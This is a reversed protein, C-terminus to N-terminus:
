CSEPMGGLIDAVARTELPRYFVYGQVQDCGMATIIDLQRENEVGEAVIQLGLSHGIAVIHRALVVNREEALNQIFSRDIKLTDFPFSCLYSLSSYGTGFDDIAFRVGANKLQDINNLTCDNREMLLTETVELELWQAPFDLDELLSSVQNAFVEEQIQLSSINIALHLPQGCQRQWQKTQLMATRLAWKGVTQILGLSELAPIFLSPPVRGMKENRWRLLVEFGSIRHTKLLVKPQYVLYFENRELARHLESELTVQNATESEMSLNYCYAQNHGKFKARYMAADAKRLLAHPDTGHQPYLSVGISAKTFIERGELQFPQRFSYLIKEAIPRWGDPDNLDPIVFTFEDGGFRAVTDTERLLGGLRRAVEQLLLDGVMHGFSDNIKKFDDLDLFMVALPRRFRHARALEAGLRDMYLTRNPLHTLPDFKAMRNLEAEVKKRDSVDHLVALYLPPDSHPVENVAIELHLPEGDKKQGFAELRDRKDWWLHQLLQHAFLPQYRSKFLLKAINASRLEEDGYGFMEPVALNWDELSGDSRFTILGDPISGMITTLHATKKTNLLKLAEQETYDEITFVLGHDDPGDVLDSLPIPAIEVHYVCSQGNQLHEFNLDYKAGSQLISAALQRLDPIPLLTELSRGTLDDMGCLAAMKPNATLIRLDATTVVLGSPANEIIREAYTRFADIQHRDADIYTEIALGMDFFMMKVLAASLEARTDLDLELDRCIRSLFHCLALAYAGTYWKLDLGIRQHRCGIRLRGAIYGPGYRGSLLTYYYRTQIRQLRKIQEPSSLLRGLPPFNKLHLYFERIFGGAQKLLRRRHKRLLAGDHETIGLFQKRLQIDEADLTNMKAPKLLDKVPM